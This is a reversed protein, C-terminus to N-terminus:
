VAATTMARLSFQAVQKLFLGRLETNRMIERIAEKVFYREFYRKSRM